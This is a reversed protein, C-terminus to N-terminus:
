GHCGGRRSARTKKPPQAVTSNREAEVEEFTQGTSELIADRHTFAQWRRISVDVYEPDIELGYVHRGVMEGALLTSGSGMFPDLIISQPKSCDLMADAIMRVPKVTPHMALEDDRGSKFANLGAYQWINTRSRGYQGLEFTNIHPGLGVKFACILEHRSRYFTGMGGNSKVWVCINKLESFVSSGAELMIRIHAWDICSFVISGDVSVDAIHGFATQLFCLFDADSLEGSAIAFERHRSRGLGRAHTRISVNYPCDTFTMTARRGAMLTMYSTPLLADACHLRSRHCLWLDGPRTVSRGPGPLEPEDPDPAPDSRDSMIQDFDNISFGTAELEIGAEPLAIALQGLEIALLDTDWGADEALRNAALAYARKEIESMHDIQIVPITELGLEGAVECRLIGSLVKNTEDIVVPDIFGVTRLIATLKRRSARDHTRLKQTPLKLDSLAVQKIAPHQFPLVLTSRESNETKRRM